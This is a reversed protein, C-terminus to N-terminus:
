SDARKKSAKDGGAPKAKKATGGEKKSKAAEPTKQASEKDAKKAAEYGKSRYDTEYFGSGKFLVGAGMGIQRELGLKKCEPCKRKAGESMSQFVELQHGCHKCVYDYTPM